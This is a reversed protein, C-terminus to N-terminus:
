NLSSKVYKGGGELMATLTYQGCIAKTNDCSAGEPTVPQYAYCNVAPSSSLVAVGATTCATVKDSWRPDKVADDALTKMNTKRWNGDNMQALSPYKSYKAYYIELQGQLTDINAQRDKNRNKVQVGSYTSVVLTSLIGIIVLVVLIEIITFGSSNNKRLRM